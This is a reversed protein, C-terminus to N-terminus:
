GKPNTSGGCLVEIQEGVKKIAALLVETLSEEMRLLELEGDIINGDNMVTSDILEILKNCVTRTDQLKLKRLYEVRLRISIEYLQYLIPQVNSFAHSRMIDRVLCGLQSGLNVPEHDRQSLSSKLGIIANLQDLTLPVTDADFQVLIVEEMHMTKRCLPCRPLTSQSYGRSHELLCNNGFIHGCRAAVADHFLGYPELCISCLM